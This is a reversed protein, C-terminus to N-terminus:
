KLTVVYPMEIGNDTVVVDVWTRDLHEQMARFMQSMAETDVDDDNQGAQEVVDGIIKMYAAVDYSFSTLPPAAAVPATFMEDLSDRASEGIGLAIADNTLAVYAPDTPMPVLGPPLELVEGNPELELEALQPMFMQGMLLLSPADEIAILARGNVSPPAGGAIDFDDMSDIIVKFGRLSDAVPPLPQNAAEQMDAVSEQLDAFYECEFPDEELASARDGIFERMAPLNLSFGLAFLGEMSGGLGPVAASLGAMSSAIDNRLNFVTLLDFRGPEMRTYGLDIQPMVEAMERIEAKCVDSIESNDYDALALLEANVGTQESTFTNTLGVIDIFGLGQPMMGHKASLGSIKDSSELNSSPKDIGLVQKLVSDSAGDPLFTAVAYDGERAIVLRMEENVAYRYSVGDITATSMAQGASGELESVGKEFQDPDELAIRMVPLLGVGYLGGTIDEGIGLEDLRGDEFFEALKVAVPGFQDMAEATEDDVDARANQMAGAIMTGYGKLVAENIERMAALVDDDMPALSGFFYPTDAPVYELLAGGASSKLANATAREPSSEEDNSCSVFAISLLLYTTVRAFRNM